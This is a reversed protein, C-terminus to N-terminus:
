RPDARLLSRLQEVDLKDKPRGAVTKMRFLEELSVVPAELDGPLHLKSARAYEADFNFPETVFIDVRTEPHLDSVLQFVVMGKDHVWEERTQADALGEASVPVLPRYGLEALARVCRLVNDPDLAVVLDVDVTYRVYGHAAVALGGVILYRVGAGRLAGVIICVSDTTM